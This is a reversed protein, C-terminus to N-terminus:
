EIKQFLIGQKSTQTGAISLDFACEEIGKIQSGLQKLIKESSAPMFPWLLTAIIRLSDAMSYLISNLEAGQKKWPEKENLFVNCAKVFGMTESLALHLEFAKMHSKIKNLDLKEKLEIATKGEPIKGECYKELMALTRNVLNGLENALEDNNRKKLGAESFFGDEGFPIERILYYRVADINFKKALELPNIVTGRSKSMKEGQETNIFGHVLVTKPLQIGASELISWWIVTHHWLIDKGILHVDAPWFKEFTENPYDIGSIYNILADMWVYQVHKKNIPVPVGWDFSSRSVSLDKLEGSLRNKIEERKGKPWICFPNEEIYELLRQKYKGMQFFYSEESLVECEKLHVPCKGQILDKEPYFTECDTCYYGSYKGLYIEGNEFIKQFINQAVKMHEPETTRIFRNNSINWAKCLEKFKEAKENVFEQPTKKAAKAAKMIKQGHEDTGTLFFVEDGLLRHWRALVDACLKEYAHGFIPCM